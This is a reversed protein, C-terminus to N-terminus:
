WAIRYHDESKSSCPQVDDIYYSNTPEHKSTSPVAMPYKPYKVIPTYNHTTQNATAKIVHDPTNPLSAQREQLNLNPEEAVPEYQTRSCKQIITLILSEM